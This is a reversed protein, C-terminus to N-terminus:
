MAWKGVNYGFDYFHWALARYHVLFFKKFVTYHIDRFLYRVPKSQESFMLYHSYLFSLPSFSIIPFPDLISSLCSNDSRFSVSFELCFSNFFIGSRSVVKHFEYKSSVSSVSRRSSPPPSKFSCSYYKAFQHLFIIPCHCGPERPIYNQVQLGM